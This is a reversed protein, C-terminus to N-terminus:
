LWNRTILEIDSILKLPDSVPEHIKCNLIGNRLKIKSINNDLIRDILHYLFISDKSDDFKLYYPRPIMTRIENSCFYRRLLSRGFSLSFTKNLGTVTIEFGTYVTTDFRNPTQTKIFILNYTLGNRKLIGVVEYGYCNCSGSCECDLTKLKSEIKTCYTQNAVFFSSKITEYHIM